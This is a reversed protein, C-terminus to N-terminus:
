RRGPCPKEQPSSGRHIAHVVQAWFDRDRQDGRDISENLHEIAISVAEQGHNAVLARAVEEVKAITWRGESSPM